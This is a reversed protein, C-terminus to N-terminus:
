SLYNPFGFIFSIKNTIPKSRFDKFKSPPLQRYRFYNDTEDVKRGIKFNHKTIWKDAQKRTFGNQQEKTKKRIVISQIKSSNKKTTRPKRNKRTRPKRNKRTKPM